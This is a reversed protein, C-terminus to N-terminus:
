ISKQRAYYYLTIFSKFIVFWQVSLFSQTPLLWFCSQSQCSALAEFALGCVRVLTPKNLCIFAPILCVSMRGKARVLSLLVLQGVLTHPCCHRTAHGSISQTSALIEVDTQCGIQSKSHTPSFSGLVRSSVVLTTLPWTRNSSLNSSIGSRTRAAPPSLGNFNQMQTIMM